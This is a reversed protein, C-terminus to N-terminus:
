RNQKAYDETWEHECDACSREESRVPVSDGIVELDLMQNIIISNPSGCNPCVYPKRTESM